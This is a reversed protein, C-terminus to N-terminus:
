PSRGAMLYLILKKHRAKAADCFVSEKRDFWAWIKTFAIRLMAKVLIHAQFNM